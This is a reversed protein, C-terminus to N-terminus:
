PRSPRPLSRRHAVFKSFLLVVVALATVAAASPLHGLAAGVAFFVAVGVGAAHGTSHFRALVLVGPVAGALAALPLVGVGVGIVTALGAGGRFRLFVPYWHGVVAAAGAAVRWVPPEVGLAWAALVAAAGKLADGAFVLLGATRGVARFVNAAGPNGTGVTFVDLRKARAVLYAVPLSGLLYGLLGSALLELVAGEPPAGGHGAARGRRM